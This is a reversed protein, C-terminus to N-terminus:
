LTWLKRWESYMRFGEWSRFISENDKFDKKPIRAKKEWKPRFEKLTELSEKLQDRWTSPDFMNQSMKKKHPRDLDALVGVPHLPWLVDGELCAVALRDKTSPPKPPDVKWSDHTSVIGLCRNVEKPRLLSKGPIDPHRLQSLLFRANDTGGGMHDFRQRKKMRQLQNAQKMLGKKKLRRIEAEMIRKIFHTDHLFCFATAVRRDSLSLKMSEAIRMVNAFVIWEHEQRNDQPLRWSQWHQWTASSVVCAVTCLDERKKPDKVVLLAQELMSNLRAPLNSLKRIRERIGM